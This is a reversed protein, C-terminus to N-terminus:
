RRRYLGRHGVDRRPAFFVRSRAGLIVRARDDGRGARPTARHTRTRVRTARADADRRADRRATFRPADLRARRARLDDDHTSTMM